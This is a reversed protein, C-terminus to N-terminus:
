RGCCVVATATRMGLYIIHSLVMKEPRCLYHSVSTRLNRLNKVASFTRVLPEAQLLEVSNGNFNYGCMDM